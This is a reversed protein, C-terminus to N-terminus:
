KQYNAVTDALAKMGTEIQQLNANSFNLRFTNDHGGDAFFHTGPVYAVKHAIAEQLLALADIGEAFQGWIFLGGQPVTYSANLLPMFSLMADRRKKYEQCIWEIHPELKGERIYIDIAAQNLNATHTDAGQKCIVMKRLVEPNGIAAGVRLGPSITKSFSTLFVVNGAEDFSKISPLPEGEFRLDCYPDDEIVIVGYRATLEAIKKRRELTLTRGSPNQFTPITYLLKPKHAKLKEELDELIIGNEDLELPILNAQYTRFTQLAGLFTPSEVLMTEGPNLFVRTILDIGQSSGTLTIVNEATANIGRKKVLSAISDRLAPWGETIGYQLITASNDRILKQSIASLEENPFTEPAPNGGGFSILEPDALLKFLERIASGTIGNLREAFQYQM